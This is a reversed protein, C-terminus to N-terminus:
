DTVDQLSKLTGAGAGVGRRCPSWSTTQREFLCTLEGAVNTHLWRALETASVGQSLLFQLKAYLAELTM